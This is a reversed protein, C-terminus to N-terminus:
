DRILDSKLEELTSLTSLLAHRCVAQMCHEQRLEFINKTFKYVAEDCQL